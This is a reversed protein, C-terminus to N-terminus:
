DPPLRVSPRNLAVVIEEVIQEVPRHAAFVKADAPPDLAGFQSDLLDVPMFHDRKAMAAGIVTPSATLLCWTVARGSTRLGSQVFETLASCALVVTEDECARVAAVMADVWEARDADTLAVGAAMRMRNAESHHDDAEIFPWAMRSALARGVTTKGCGSVGMIVILRKVDGRGTWGEM